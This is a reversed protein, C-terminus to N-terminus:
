TKANLLDVLGREDKPDLADIIAFLADRGLCVNKGLTRTAPKAISGLGVLVESEGKGLWKDQGSLRIRRVTVLVPHREAAIGRDSVM